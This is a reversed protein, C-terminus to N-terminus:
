NYTNYTKLITEIQAKESYNDLIHKNYGEAHKIRLQINEIYLSIVDFMKKPKSPSILLGTVNNKILMKCEGVKTSIVALKSLGYELLALPLGESKSSLIGIECQNLINFVDPKSGYLFVNDKLGMDDIKHHILRSYEDNFDKGVCHLTWNPYLDIVKKFAELLTFHDKQPRLNALCIIRNGDRGKLKTNKLTKNIIAFNSLYSVSKAKLNEKAWAELSRNVSFVHSFYVSCFKLVRFKRDKLFESNGYHDHWIVTIKRNFLKIITALFFSTSHAHIIDINNNKIFKNLRIIASFDITKKKNLFKYEVNESLSKKLLGEERTACLFSTVKENILANAINVAVREAGGIQLSDILQLVRM